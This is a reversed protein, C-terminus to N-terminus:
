YMIETVMWPQYDIGRCMPLHLRTCKRIREDCGTTRWYKCERSTWERNTLYKQSTGPAFRMKLRKGNPSLRQIILGHYEYIAEVPASPCTYSIFATNPERRSLTLDTITGFESFYKKVLQVTVNRNLSYIYVGNYGFINDPRTNCPEPALYSSRKLEKCMSPASAPKTSPTCVLEQTHPVSNIDRGNREPSPIAKLINTRNSQTVERETAEAVAEDVCECKYAFHRSTWYDFGLEILALERVKILKLVYMSCEKLRCAAQFSTESDKFRGMVMLILGKEGHLAHNQPELKLANNAVKLADQCRELRRYCLCLDTHYSMITGDLHIAQILLDTAKAYDQRRIENRATVALNRSKAFSYADDM